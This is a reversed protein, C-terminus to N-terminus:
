RGLLQDSPSKAAPRLVTSDSVPPRPSKAVSMLLAGSDSVVPSMAVLSPQPCMWGGLPGSAVERGTLVGRRGVRQGLVNLRCRVPARPPQVM